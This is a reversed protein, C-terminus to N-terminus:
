ASEQTRPPGLPAPGVSGGALLEGPLVTREPVAEGRWMRELLRFAAEGMEHMPYRVTTLPPVVRQAAPQGGTAVVSLDRPIRRGADRVGQYIGEARWDFFFSLATVDPRRLLLDRVGARADEDSWYATDLVELAPDRCGAAHLADRYGDRQGIASPIAARTGFLAIRRHGQQLLTEMLGYAVNYADFLVRPARLGEPDRNVLVWPLGLRELPKLEAATVDRHTFLVAGDHRALTGSAVWDAFRDWGMGGHQRVACGTAARCFGLYAPSYLVDGSLGRFEVFLVAVTRSAVPRPAALPRSARAIRRRPAYGLRRAVEEVRAVTAPPIRSAAAKGSLVLSVTPQSVRARRAVRTMTVTKDPKPV